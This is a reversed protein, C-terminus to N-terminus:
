KRRYELLGCARREFFIQIHNTDLFTFPKKCVGIIRDNVNGDSGSKFILTIEGTNELFVCPKCWPLVPLLVPIAM